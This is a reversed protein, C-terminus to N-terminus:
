NEGEEFKVNFIKKFIITKLELKKKYYGNIITFNTGSSTPRRRTMM